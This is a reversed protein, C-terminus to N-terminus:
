RARENQSFNQDVYRALGDRWHPLHAYGLSHMKWNVAMENFSVAARRNFSSASVPIVDIDIGAIELIAKVYDFRSAAGENVCNFIGCRRDSVLLLIRKAVDNVYSPVGYQESNASIPTNSQRASEAEEIRRAVFNKRNSVDGGFLWGTRLILNQHNACLVFNEALVKSRHHHTTPNVIDYERYPEDKGAGYVGTSSIFVFPIDACATASSLTETLLFNDRYCVEPSIECAEVDTNAAAHIVVDYGVIKQVLLANNSTLANHRSMADCQWGLLQAEHAIASGLLGTAGTLLIRM